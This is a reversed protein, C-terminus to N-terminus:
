EAPTNRLYPYGDNIAPSINWVATFDWENYNEWDQMEATTMPDGNGTDSCQSTDSDYYCHTISTIGYTLAIFGGYTGSSTVAGTSYCREVTSDALQGCFGAVSNKGDVISRSYCDAVTSGAQLWGAFGGIMSSEAVETLSNVDAFAYCQNISCGETTGLLGGVAYQGTVSGFAFCKTITASSAFGALGGTYWAGVGASVITDTHCNTVTGRLGGFMGGTSSTGAIHGTVSCNEILSTDDATIGGILGGVYERGIMDVGTLHLDKILVQRVATRISKIFGVFDENPRNIYLGSITKDNGDIKGSFGTETQGIPLWGEGGNYTPDATDSADIDNEIRFCADLHTEIYMLGYLNHILYPNEVSGAGAVSVPFFDSEINSLNNSSFVLKYTGEYFVLDNFVAMGEANTLVTKIGQFPLGNKETVNIAVNPIPTGDAKTTVKVTPFGGLTQGAISAAPQTVIEMKAEAFNATVSKASDILLEAPNESGSLDGGWDTFLYGATTPTATLRVTQGHEYDKGAKTVLEPTVTGTGEPNVTINLPYTLKSFVAKVSKNGNMVITNASSVSAGDAGGWHDFLSGAAPTAKLTVVTNEGYTYKGPKPLTTGDGEVGITLTFQPKQGCGSSLLILCLLIILVSSFLLRKM